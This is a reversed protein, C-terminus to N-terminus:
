ATALKGANFHIDVSVTRYKKQYDAIKIAQQMLSYGRVRRESYDVKWERKDINLLYDYCARAVARTLDLEVFNGSAAGSDSGSGHGHSIFFLIPKAM